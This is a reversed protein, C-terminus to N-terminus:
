LKSSLIRILKDAWVKNQLDGPHSYDRGHEMLIGDYKEFDSLDHFRRRFDYISDKPFLKSIVGSNDHNNYYTTYNNPSQTKYYTLELTDISFYIVPIRFASMVTQLTVLQQIAVEQNFHYDAGQRELETASDSAFERVFFYSRCQSIGTPQLFSFRTLEPIQIIIAMPKNYNAIYTSVNRIVTNIDSAGVGLNVVPITLRQELQNSWRSDEDIGVGMTISCGTALFFDNDKLSEFNHNTRFNHENLNYRINKAHWYDQINRNYKDTKSYNGHENIIGPLHLVKGDMPFYEPLDTLLYYDYFKLFRSPM